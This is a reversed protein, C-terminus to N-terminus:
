GADKDLRINWRSNNKKDWDYIMSDYSMSIGQEVWWSPSIMGIHAGKPTGNHKHKEEYATYMDEVDQMAKPDQGQLMDVIDICMALLEMEPACPHGRGMEERDMNQVWCVLFKAYDLIGVVVDIGAALWSIAKSGWASGQRKFIKPIWKEVWAWVKENTILKWIQKEALWQGFKGTKKELWEAVKMFGKKFLRGLRAWFGNKPKPEPTHKKPQKALWDLFDVKGDKDAAPKFNVTAPDTPTKPSKPSKPSESGVTPGNNTKPPNKVDPNHKAKPPPKADPADNAGDMWQHRGPRAQADYNGEVHNQIADLDWGTYQDRMAMPDVGHRLGNNLNLDWHRGTYENAYNPHHRPAYEPLRPRFYNDPELVPSKPIEEPRPKVLQNPQFEPRPKGNIPDTPPKPAAPEPRIEPPPKIDGPKPQPVPEVSGPPPGQPEVPRPRQEPSPNPNDRGPNVDQPPKPDSGPPKDAPNTGPGPDNSKPPDVNSNPPPKDSVPKPDQPSNTDPKPSDPRPPEVNSKPPPKDSVPKPDQPSNTDPKPSDPRPPQNAAPQNPPPQDPPPRNSPPAPDIPPSQDPPPQNPPAPDIPRIQPSSPPTGGPDPKPVNQEPVPKPPVEQNPPPQNPPPSDNPPGQVQPPNPPKDDVNPKPEVQDPPPRQAEIPKPPKPPDEPPKPPDDPTQAKPPKPHKPHKPKPKKPRDFHEPPKPDEPPRSPNQEPQDPNTRPPEPNRNPEHDPSNSQPPDPNRPPPDPKKPADPQPHKPPQDPEQSPQNPQPPDPRSQQQPPSDKPTEPKPKDKPLDSPKPEPAPQGPAQPPTAPKIAKPLTIEGPPKVPPRVPPSSPPPLQEPEIPVGHTIAETLPGQHTVPPDINATNVSIVTPPHTQIPIPEPQEAIPIRGNKINGDLFGIFVLKRRDKKDTGYVLPLITANLKENDQQNSSWYASSDSESQHWTSDNVARDLATKDPFLFSNVIVIDSFSTPVPGAIASFKVLLFAFAAFVRLAAM